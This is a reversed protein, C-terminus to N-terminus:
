YYYKIINILTILAIIGTISGIITNMNKFFFDTKSEIRKFFCIYYYFVMFSGLVVGTLFLFEHIMEFTFLHNSSLLITVFVYYPVPFFNLASLLMGLFFRNTKSRIKMEEKKTKTKRALFLFYITLLIFIVLGVERLVVVVNPHSDLFRAFIIASLTQFFIIILAGTTFLLARDRGERISVKAATMNILGPLAIGISASFFGFFLPLISGM